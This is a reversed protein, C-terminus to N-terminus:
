GCHDTFEHSVVVADIYSPHQPYDSRANRSRKSKQGASDVRSALAEAEQLLDNLEAVTEGSSKIAHWQTSFWGAVDSKPGALWPDILINYHLRSSSSRFNPPYALISVM